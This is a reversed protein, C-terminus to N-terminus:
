IIYVFQVTKENLKYKRNQTLNERVLTHMMSINSNRTNFYM